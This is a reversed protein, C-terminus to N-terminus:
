AQHVHGSSGEVARRELEMVTGAFTQTSERFMALEQGGLAMFASEVARLYDGQVVLRGQDEGRDHRRRAAELGAYAWVVGPASEIEHTVEIRRYNRERRDLAVLEDDGVPRLLGNVRCAPERRIDLFAVFLGPRLESGDALRQVYYKYNALDRSNDMAVGWDRRYGVLDAVFGRADRKRSPHFGDRRVAALSGFGFVFQADEASLPGEADAPGRVAGLPM